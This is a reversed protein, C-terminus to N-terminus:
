KALSIQFKWRMQILNRHPCHSFFKNHWESLCVPGKIKKKEGLQMLYRFVSICCSSKYERINEKLDQNEKRENKGLTCLHDNDRSLHASKQFVHM